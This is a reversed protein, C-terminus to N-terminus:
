KTGNCLKWYCANLANKRLGVGGYLFLPNYAKGPNEAVALAAAHAFENSKGIVFTDFTYKLNLVNNKDKHTNDIVNTNEMGAGDVIVNFDYEKGTVQMYASKILPIYKTDVQGKQYDSKTKFVITSGDDSVPVLTKVWTAFSIPSVEQELVNCVTTWVEEM